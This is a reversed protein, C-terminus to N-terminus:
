GIQPWSCDKQVTLYEQPKQIPITLPFSKDLAVELPPDAAVPPTVKWARTAAQYPVRIRAPETHNWPTFLLPRLMTNISSAM